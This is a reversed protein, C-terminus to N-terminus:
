TSLELHGKSIEM